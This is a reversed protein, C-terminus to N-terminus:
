YSIKQKFYNLRDIVINLQEFVEDYIPLIQDYYQNVKENWIGKVRIFTKPNDADRVVCSADINPIFEMGTKKWVVEGDGNESLKRSEYKFHDFVKEMKKDFKKDYYKTFYEDRKIEPRMLCLLTDVCSIFIKRSDPIWTKIPSGNKDLKTNFYGDRMETCRAEMCKRVAEEIIKPKSFESKPSYEAAESVIEEDEEDPEIIDTDKAM